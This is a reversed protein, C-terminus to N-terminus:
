IKKNKLDIHSYYYGRRGAINTEVENLALSGDGIGIRIRELIDALEVETMGTALLRELASLVDGDVQELAANVESAVRDLEALVSTDEGTVPLWFAEKIQAASMGRESPNNPLGYATRQRIAERTQASIPSIRRREKEESM